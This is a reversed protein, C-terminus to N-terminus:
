YKEILADFLKAKAVAEEAVPTNPIDIRLKYEKALM